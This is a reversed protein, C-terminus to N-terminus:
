RKNQTDALDPIRSRSRSRLCLLSVPFPLTPYFLFRFSLLPSLSLFLPSLSLLPYLPLQSFTRLLRFISLHKKNTRIRSRCCWFHKKDNPSLCSLFLPFCPASAGSHRVCWKTHLVFLAAIAFVMSKKLIEWVQRVTAYSVSFRKYYDAIHQYPTRLGPRIFIGVYINTYYIFIFISM